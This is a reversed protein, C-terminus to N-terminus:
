FPKKDQRTQNELSRCSLHLPDHVSALRQNVLADGALPPDRLRVHRRRLVRRWDLGLLMLYSTSPKHLEGYLEVDIGASARGHPLKEIFELL